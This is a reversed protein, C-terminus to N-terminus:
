ESEFRTERRRLIYKEFSFADARFPLIIEYTHHWPSTQTNQLIHFNQAPMFGQELLFADNEKLTTQHLSNQNM